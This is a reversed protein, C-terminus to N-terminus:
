RLLPSPGLTLVLVAVIIVALAVMSHLEKDTLNDGDGPFQEDAEICHQVLRFIFPDEKKSTQAM